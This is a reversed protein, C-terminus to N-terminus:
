SQKKLNFLYRISLGMTQNNMRENNRYEWMLNALGYKYEASLVLSNFQFGFRVAPGYDLRKIQSYGTDYVIREGINGNYGQYKSWRVNESYHIDGSPSRIDLIVNGGMGYGVYPGIGFIVNMKEFRAKFEMLVPIEIYYLSVAVTSASDTSGASPYRNESYSQFFGKKAFLLDAAISFNDNVKCETALGVHFAPNVPIQIRFDNVYERHIIMKPIDVGGTLGIKFQANSSLFGLIGIMCLIISKKM